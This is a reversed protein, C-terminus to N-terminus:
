IRPLRSASRRRQKRMHLDNMVHSMKKNIALNSHRSEQLRGTSDVQQILNGSSTYSFCEVRSLFSLKM